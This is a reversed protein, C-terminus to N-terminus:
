AGLYYNSIVLKLHHKGVVNKLTKGVDILGGSKVFGEYQELKKVNNMIFYKVLEGSYDKNISLILAALGAVHPAAMSTGSKTDYNDTYTHIIGKTINKPNVSLSKINEGPAVVHVSDQGYNSSPWLKNEATSAAVCLANPAYKAVNCPFAPVDDNCNQKNGAAAVLLHKPTNKLM